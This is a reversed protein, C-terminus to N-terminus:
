WLDNEMPSFFFSVVARSFDYYGVRQGLMFLKFVSWIIYQFQLWHGLVVMLADLLKMFKAQSNKIQILLFYVDRLADM